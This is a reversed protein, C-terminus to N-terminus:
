RRAGSPVHVSWRVPPMDVPPVISRCSRFGPLYRNQTDSTGRSNMGSHQLFAALTAVAVSRLMRDPIEGDITM